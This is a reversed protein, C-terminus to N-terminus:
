DESVPPENSQALFELFKIEQQGWWLAARAFFMQSPTEAKHLGHTVAAFAVEDWIIKLSPNKVALKASERLSRIQDLDLTKSNITLKGDEEGFLSKFPLAGIDDWLINMIKNEDEISLNGKGILYCALKVGLKNLMKYQKL